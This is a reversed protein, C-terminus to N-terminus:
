VEHSRYIALASDIELVCGVATANLGFLPAASNKQLQRSMARVLGFYPNSSSEGKDGGITTCSGLVSAALAPGSLWLTRLSKRRRVKLCSHNARQRGRLRAVPLESQVSRGGSTESSAGM